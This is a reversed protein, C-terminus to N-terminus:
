EIPKILLKDILWKDNEYVCWIAYSNYRFLTKKDDVSIAEIRDNLIVDRYKKVADHISLEKENKSSHVKGNKMIAAMEDYKEAYALQRWASLVKIAGENVSQGDASLVLSALIMLWTIRFM